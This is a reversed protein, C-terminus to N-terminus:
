AVGFNPGDNQPLKSGASNKKKLPPPPYWSCALQKLDKQNLLNDKNSFGKKTINIENVLRGMNNDDFGSHHWYFSCNGLVGTGLPTHRGGQQPITDNQPLQLFLFALLAHALM